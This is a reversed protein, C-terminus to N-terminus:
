YLKHGIVGTVLCASEKLRGLLKKVKGGPWAMSVLVNCSQMDARTFKLTQPRDALPQYDDQSTPETSSQNIIIVKKQNKNRGSIIKKKIM